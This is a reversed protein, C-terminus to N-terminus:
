EINADANTDDTRKRKAPKVDVGNQELNNFIMPTLYPDSDALADVDIEPFGRNAYYAEIDQYFEWNSTRNKRKNNHYTITLNNWKKSIREVSIDYGHRAMENSIEHWVATKKPASAFQRERDTRLKILLRTAEPSWLMLNRSM